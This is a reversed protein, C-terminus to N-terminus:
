KKWHFTSSYKSEEDYVYTIIGDENNIEPNNKIELRDESNNHYVIAM